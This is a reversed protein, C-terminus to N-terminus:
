PLQPNLHLLHDGSQLHLLLVEGSCCVHLLALSYNKANFPKVSAQKGVLVLPVPILPLFGERGLLFVLTGPLPLLTYHCTSCLM